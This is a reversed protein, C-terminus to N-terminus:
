VKYSAKNKEEIETPILSRLSEIIPGPFSTVLGERTSEKTILKVVDIIECKTGTIYGESFMVLHDAVHAFYSLFDIHDDSKGRPFGEGDMQEHHELILRKMHKPFEFGSKSMIYISLMPHKKYLSTKLYDNDDFFSKKIQNFGIDKLLATLLIQSLQEPDSIKNLKALMYALAAVRNPLTDRIFLKEVMFTLLSVSPSVNLPFQLVEARVREILKTHGSNDLNMLFTKLLFVDKTKHEYQDLRKQQLEISDYYEKNASRLDEPSLKAQELFSQEDKYTIQIFGGNEEITDWDELLQETVPSNIYLAVLRKERMSDYLFLNVPYKGDVRLWFSRINLFRM